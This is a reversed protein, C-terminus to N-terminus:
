QEGNIKNKIKSQLDAIVIDEIGQEDELKYLLTGQSNKEYDKVTKLNISVEKFKIRGYGRSGSGGIYDDELLNMSKIINSFKDIDEEYFLSFVMNFDFKAGAPVREIQRPHAAKSTKRDIINEWKGETYALELDKFIEEKEEMQKKTNDNLFADRVLLRTPGTEEERKDAGVGFITCVVCDAKGCNCIGTASNSNLGIYKELLSRMKGKLSSGPVFPVGGSTKIVGNDIGGIVTDIKSGGISLGTIAEIKGDLFIKGILRM